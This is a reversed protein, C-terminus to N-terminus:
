GQNFRLEGCEDVEPEEAPEGECFDARQLHDGFTGHLPFPFFGADVQVFADASIRVM